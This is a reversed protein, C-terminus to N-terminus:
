CLWQKCRNFTICIQHLNRWWPIVLEYTLEMILLEYTIPLRTGWMKSCGVRESNKIRSRRPFIISTDIIKVWFNYINWWYISFIMILIGFYVIKSDWTKVIELVGTSNGFDKIEVDENIWRWFGWSTGCRIFASAGALGDLQHCSNGVRRRFPLLTPKIM